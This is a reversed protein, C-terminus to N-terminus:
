AFRPPPPDASPTHRSPGHFFSAPELPLLRGAPVASAPAATVMPSLAQQVLPSPERVGHTHCSGDHMTMAMPSAAAAPHGPANTGGSLCIVACAVWSQAALFAALTFVASCRRCLPM